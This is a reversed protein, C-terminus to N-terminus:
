VPFWPLESVQEFRSYVSVNSEYDMDELALIENSFEPKLVPVVTEYMIESYDPEVYVKRRPRQRALFWLIALVLFCCIFALLLLAGVGVPVVISIITVTDDSSASELM